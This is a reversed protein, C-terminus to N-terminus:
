LRSLDTVTCDGPVAGVHLIRCPMEISAVCHSGGEKRVSFCVRAPMWQSGHGADQMFVLIPSFLGLVCDLLRTADSPESVPDKDGQQMLFRREGLHRDMLCPHEAPGQPVSPDDPQVHRCPRTRPDGPEVSRSRLNDSVATLM